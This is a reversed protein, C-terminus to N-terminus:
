PSARAIKAAMVVGPVCKGSMYRSIMVQSTGVISALHEQTIERQKMLNYLRIKFSRKWEEDSLEHDEPYFGRFSHLVTDYLCRRGDKFKFYIEYKSVYRAEELDEATAFPDIDILSKQLFYDFFLWLTARKKIQKM